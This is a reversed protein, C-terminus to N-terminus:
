LSVVRLDSPVVKDSTVFLTSYLLRQQRTTVCLFHRSELSSHPLHSTPSTNPSLRPLLREAHAFRQRQRVSEPAATISM